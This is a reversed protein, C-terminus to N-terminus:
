VRRPRMSTHKYLLLESGNEDTLRIEQVLYEKGPKSYKEPIRGEIRVKMGLLIPRLFESTQKAHVIPQDPRPIVGSKMKASMFAIIHLVAPHVIIGGFPSNELYWPNDDDVSVAMARNWDETPFYEGIYGWKDSCVIEDWSEKMKSEDFTLEFM